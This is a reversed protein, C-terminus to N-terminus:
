DAHGQNSQIIHLRRIEVEDSNKDVQSEWYKTVKEKRLM